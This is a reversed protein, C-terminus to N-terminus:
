VRGQISAGLNFYFKDNIQYYKKIFGDVGFQYRSIIYGKYQNNSENNVGFIPSIGVVWNDEFFIGVQPRFQFNISKNKYTLSDVFYRSETGYISLYGGAMITGKPIQSFSFQISITML